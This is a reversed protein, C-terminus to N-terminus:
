PSPTVDFCLMKGNVTTMFIRGEAAIMGDWTPMDDIEISRTERGTEKDFVKLLSGHRGEAHEQQLALRPDDTHFQSGRTVAKQEDYLDRPGCVFLADETVFMARVWVPVDVSWNPEAPRIAAKRGAQKDPPARVPTKPMSFLEFELPVTWKRYKPKRGYGYVADTDACLIKGHIVKKLSQYWAYGGEVANGYAQYSRHWWSGDLLGNPSFIHSTANGENRAGAKTMVRKGDMTLVQSTMFLNTGKASLLDNNAPPMTLGLGPLVLQGGEQLSSVLKHYETGDPAVPGWRRTSIPTGTRLDLRYFTIGGDLFLSRGATLFVSKDLVLVSGFVPWVSELQEFNFIRKDQQAALFRWRLAGDHAGLCYVYGDRSGFVVRGQAYTPPSDIRAGATFSWKKRGDKTSVAFVTHSEMEAAYVMGAAATPSTLHKGVNARWLLSPTGALKCPVYSSREPNGRLVPWDNSSTESVPTKADYAPGKHLREIRKSDDLSYRQTAALANMASLKSEPYCACPHAPAYTLGNAPMVGYTCAGRVWHNLEWHKAVPDVYEIGARSALIYRDTAKQPYCRQHFWYSTNDPEFTSVTKGSHLDIGFFPGKQRGDKTAGFWVTGKIVFIDEPSQFGSAPHDVEWMRRGTEASLAVLRDSPTEWSGRKMKSVNESGAFLVVGDSVVLRPAYGSPYKEAITVDHSTWLVKGATRDLAIVKTYDCLYVRQEDAGTCLPAIPMRVEWRVGGSAPDIAKLRAHRDKAWFGRNLGGGPFAVKDKTSPITQQDRVVALLLDGALVIEDTKATGEYTKLTKGTKPDLKALPADIGLTVYLADDSAALRRPMTSPGAKYPFLWTVWKEIPRKWLVTGNYADRATLLWNSPFFISAPSGEDMIYFVRGGTSVMAAFSSMKEHFRGWRPSGRWQLHRPPAVVTDRSVPNNGADYLYQPWGDTDLPTPKRLREWTQKKRIVAMGGPSLCRLAEAKVVAKPDDLILLNVLNEVYPLEGGTWYETTCRGHSGESKWRTRLNAVFAKDPSLVHLSYNDHKRLTSVVEANEGVYVALGGREEHLAIPPGAWASIAVLLVILAVNRHPKM